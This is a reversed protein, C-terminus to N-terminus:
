SVPTQQHVSLHWEGDERVYTSSFLAEYTMGKRTASGRYTVLATDGTLDLVREDHLAYSEWPDGQMSSVVAARDDVVTGGPLLMLVDAALVKDYFEGAAQGSTSLARWADRELDLPTSTM